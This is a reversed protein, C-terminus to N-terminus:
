LALVACPQNLRKGAAHKEACSRGAPLRINGPIDIAVITIALNICISALALAAYARPFKKFAFVTLLFMFPYAPVLYRPGPASGGYWAHFSAVFLLFILSAAASFLLEARLNKKRFLLVIGPVIMILIPSSVLLGRYPLVTLELLEGCPPCVSCADTKM